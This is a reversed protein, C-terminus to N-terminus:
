NQRMEQNQLIQQKLKELNDKIYALSPILGYDYNMGLFVFNDECLKIKSIKTM